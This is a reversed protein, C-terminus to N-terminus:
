QAERFQVGTSSKTVGGARLEPEGDLAPTYMKLPVAATEPSKFLKNIGGWRRGKGGTRGVSHPLM